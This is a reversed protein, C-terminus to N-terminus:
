CLCRKRVPKAAQCLCILVLLISISYTAKESPQARPEGAQTSSSSLPAMDVHGITTMERNLHSPNILYLTFATDLNKWTSRKSCSLKCLKWPRVRSTPRVGSTSSVCAQLRTSRSSFTQWVWNSDRRSEASALLWAYFPSVDTSESRKGAM